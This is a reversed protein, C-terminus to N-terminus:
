TINKWNKVIHEATRWALAQMTHTPNHAGSTGMVSGGCMALNPVEHSLGWRNVVNTDPNDGMRTGGYAHTSAGMAGGVPGRTVAIAGAARYWEEMKDQSFAALKRENDKYEGTIRIVARGMPDKVTPDLDLYNEEYPLTTKQIYSSHSSDANEHIFMKWQSGWSPAFGFTNMGAASIPRRDSMAWLNCGGIFDHGSHDFNDDAWDDVAVGQAPLGYWAGIKFPFLATVPAGQHHSFYHKGVQGRNNSLGNPFAKSKSLLLLRSNEYAFSSVLVVSAPQFFEEGNQVYTVGSARGEDDVEITTAVAGTVVKLHKTAEARPITTVATSAKADVHCGGTNCFGHYACGSRNQYNKSNIAAPGPFPHWGLGKAAAAMKEHFATWRLAPMPYERQRPAEFINGRPDIKGKINGAQGSVGVEYEIKDYYPELEDYGFSWDEVTSGRPIRSAGYRRTVESVVKFDWPNLRWHQAWYHLSTGGVANMMPHGGQVARQASTARVTPAEQNTKHSVLMPWGRVNNRIEDPAFDRRTMAGGAELGIVQLGAQALPLVAIGGAAGLGIVVVDTEKLTTAV